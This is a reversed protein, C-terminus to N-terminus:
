ETGQGSCSVALLWEHAVRIPDQAPGLLRDVSVALARSYAVVHEPKVVRRGTELHGLLPKSYHTRAAMAALSM